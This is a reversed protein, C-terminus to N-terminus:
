HWTFDSESYYGSDILVQKVNNKDVVVIQSPKAPVDIKGNNYTTTAEPTGGQLYKATAFLLIMKTM